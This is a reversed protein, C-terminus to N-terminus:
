IGTPLAECRPCAWSFSRNLAASCTLGPQFFRPLCAQAPPACSSACTCRSSWGRELRARSRVCTGPRLGWWRSGRGPGPRVPNGPAPPPAQGRDSAQPAAQVRRAAFTWHEAAPGAGRPRRRPCVCPDRSRRGTRLERSGTLVGLEREWSPGGGLDGWVERRAWGRRARCEKHAGARM